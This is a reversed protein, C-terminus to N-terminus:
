ISLACIAYRYVAYGFHVTVGLVNVGRLVLQFLFNEGERKSARFRGRKVDLGQCSIYLM